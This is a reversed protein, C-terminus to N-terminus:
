GVRSWIYRGGRENLELINQGTKIRNLVEQYVIKENFLYELLERNVDLSNNEPNSLLRANIELEDYSYEGPSTDSVYIVNKPDCGQEHLLIQSNNNPAKMNWHNRFGFCYSCGCFCCRVLLIKPQSSKCKSCKDVEGITINPKVSFYEM